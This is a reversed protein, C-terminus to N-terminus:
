VVFLFDKEIQLGEMGINEKDVLECLSREVLNITFLDPDFIDYSVLNKM